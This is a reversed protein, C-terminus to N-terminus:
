VFKMKNTFYAANHPPPDIIAPHTVVSDFHGNGTTRPDADVPFQVMIGLLRVTDAVALPAAM